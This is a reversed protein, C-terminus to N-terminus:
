SNALAARLQAATIPAQLETQGIHVVPITLHYRNFAERNNTIDIETLHHPYVATLEQLVAKVDDCLHCGPKSYLTVEIM